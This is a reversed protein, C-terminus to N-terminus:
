HFPFFFCKKYRISTWKLLEDNLSNSVLFLHRIDNLSFESEDNQNLNLLLDLVDNKTTSDGNHSSSTRRSQLRENIVKDFISLLKNAYVTGERRLGQLDLSKLIPFFDPLNPKGGLEMLGCVADKFEQSSMSDYQAFDRSFMFNSLINLTTTFAAAGINM